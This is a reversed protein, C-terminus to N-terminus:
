AARKTNFEEGVACSIENSKCLLAISNRYQPALVLSLWQAPLRRARARRPWKLGTLSIQGFSIRRLIGDRVRQKLVARPASLPSRTRAHAGAGPGEEANNGSESLVCIGRSREKGSGYLSKRFSKLSLSPPIVCSLDDESPAGNGVGIWGGVTMTFAFM